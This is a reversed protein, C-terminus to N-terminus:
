HDWDTLVPVGAYLRVRKCSYIWSFINVVWVELASTHDFRSYYYQYGVAIMLLLPLLPLLAKLINGVRDVNKNNILLAAPM